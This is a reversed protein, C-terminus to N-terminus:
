VASKEIFALIYDIYTHYNRLCDAISSYVKAYDVNEYEHILVNRTGVSKAIEDAFERPYVGIDALALFTERYDKPPSVEVPAREKVIHQNIDVARTIILELFREVAAQKVFDAAIESLTFKSLSSLKVLDDQILSIKRKVFDPRLM